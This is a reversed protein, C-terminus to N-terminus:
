NTYGFHTLIAQAKKTFIFEAFRSAYSNERNLQLIFHPLTYGVLPQWFGSQIKGSHAVANSTLALDTQGLAIYNNVQSISNPRIIEGKFKGLSEVYDEALKGFPALRENAWIARRAIQWNQKSDKKWLYLIGNTFKRSSARHSLKELQSSDASFFLDYLAGNNIQNILVGTASYNVHLKVKKESQYVSIISDLAPAFSSAAAISISQAALMPPLLFVLFFLVFFPPSKM